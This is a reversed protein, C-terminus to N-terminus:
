EDEKSDKLEEIKKNLNEIECTLNDIKFSLDDHADQNIKTVYISSIVATVTAFILIGGVMAIIGIIHGTITVPVVDGYGTSTMSVVIYWIATHIDNINSDCFRISVTVAFVFIIAILIIKDLYTKKLFRTLFIESDRALVLLNILQVLKILRLARLFVFNLPLMGLISLYNNRLYQKRNDSHYYSYIFEIWLIVCVILDFAEVVHKFSSDVHYFLIYGLLLIDLATLFILIIYVYQQSKKM